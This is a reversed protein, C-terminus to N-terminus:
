LAVIVFEKYQEPLESVDMSLSVIFDVDLRKSLIILKELAAGADEAELTALTLFSDLYIAEIDHNGSVLGCIFGLLVEFSEVPYEMINILRINRDLEFMHSTNKDLYIVIGDSSKAEANAAELLYKTKGKGKSGVVLKIM